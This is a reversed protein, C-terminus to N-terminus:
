YDLNRSLPVQDERVEGSHSHRLIAWIAASPASSRLWSRSSRAQTDGRWSEELGGVKFRYM